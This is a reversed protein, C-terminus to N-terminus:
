SQSFLFQIALSIALPTLDQPPRKRFFIDCDLLSTCHILQPFFFQRHLFNLLTQPLLPRSGMDRGGEFVNDHPM